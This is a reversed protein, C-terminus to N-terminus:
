TLVASLRQDLIQFAGTSVHLGPAIARRGPTNPCHFGRGLLEHLVTSKGASFELLCTLAPPDEASLPVSLAESCHGDRVLQQFGCPVGFVGTEM